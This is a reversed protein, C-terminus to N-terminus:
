LNRYILKRSEECRECQILYQVEQPGFKHESRDRNVIHKGKLESWPNELGDGLEAMIKEPPAGLLCLSTM